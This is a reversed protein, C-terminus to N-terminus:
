KNLGMRDVDTLKVSVTKSVGKEPMTVGYLADAREMTPKKHTIVIFQTDESFKKLYNAFRAVNADDLPAEIEYLVCFPLPRLKLIAFLIAIATLAQEGGSLLSISKLSKGPPQAKIEIGADLPDQGEEVPEICLDADGGGFMVKFITKFYDRIQSFGQNFRKQLDDTILKVAKDIDDAGKEADEKEALLTLYENNDDEYEQPANPNIPGLFNIRTRLRKMEQLGNEVDYGEQKFEICEPYTLQYSSYVKEGLFELDSDIKVLGNEQVHKKENLDTIQGNLYTRKEEDQKLLENLEKKRELLKNLEEKLSNLEAQEEESLAKKDADKQIDSIKQNDASILANNKEIQEQYAKISIAIKKKEGELNILEQRKEALETQLVTRQEVLEDKERKLADFNEKQKVSDSSIANREEMLKKNGKSADSYQSSLGSLKENIIKLAETYSDIDAKVTDYATTIGALKEKIDSIEQKLTSYSENLSNLEEFLSESKSTLEDKQRKLDIMLRSKEGIVKELDGVQQGASLLGSSNQKVTGGTMSGNPNYVQGDLTVIKFAFRYAKAIRLASETDQCILTNGLLHQVIPRFEEDFRILETALGIAGRERKASKTDQMDTRPKVSTLPLCTLRGIKNVKLYELVYKADDPTSTIVHQASAGLATEIAVEYNKETSIVSAVLGKIKSNLNSNTKADKMIRQVVGNYGEYSDKIRSYVSYKSQLASLESNLNFMKEGLSEIKDDISAIEQEKKDCKEKYVSLTEEKEKLQNECKEKAFVTQKYKEKLENLKEVVEKQRATIVSQEAELSGLSQMVKALNEASELAKNHASEQELEGEDIKITLSSIKSNLDSIKESLVKIEEELVQRKEGDEKDDNMLNEISFRASTNEKILRDIETKLFSIRENYVKVEGEKQTAGVTKDLIKANLTAMEGDLSGSEASHQNYQYQAENLASTFSSIEEKIGDIKRNLAERKGNASEYNYVYNNIEHFKLEKSLRNFENTKEAAAAKPALRKELDSVRVAQQRIFERTKQLSRETELKNKKAKAIGVAEEFIARRDEPKSSMIDSVKGQGIISYGEKSIGVDHLNNIIDKLRAQERNIFYASEGDRYLKRTFIVEEFPLEKFSNDKNDFFLSVECYSIAKRNETGNFIVDTMSSGRLQKASTEGIVWKIADAVNSKGCGNPGVIGTVGNEFVITEKDAFSKFGVLEIKTLGM